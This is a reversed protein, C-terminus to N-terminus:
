DRGPGSSPVCGSVSSEVPARAAKTPTKCELNRRARAAAAADDAFGYCVEEWLERAEPLFGRRELCEGLLVLAEPRWLASPSELVARLHESAEATRSASLGDRSLERGLLYRLTTALPGQPDEGLLDRLAREAADREGRGAAELARRFRCEREEPILARIRARAHARIAAQLADLRGFRAALEEEIRAGRVAAACLARLEEEGLESALWEVALFAEEASVVGRERAAFPIGVVFDAASRGRAALHAALEGARLVGEESGWLAMGERFWWPIGAYRERSGAESAMAAHVLEHRIAIKLGEVWRSFRCARVEVVLSGDEAFATAGAEFDRRVGPAGPHGPRSEARAPAFDLLFRIPLKRPQVGIRRPVSELAQVLETEAADLLRSVSRPDRGETGLVAWRPFGDGARASELAGVALLLFAGLVRRLGDASRLHISIM